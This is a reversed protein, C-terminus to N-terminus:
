RSGEPLVVFVTGDGHKLFLGYPEVREVQAQITSGIELM